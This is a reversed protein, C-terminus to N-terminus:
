GVSASSIMLEGLGCCSSMALCVLFARLFALDSAPRLLCCCCIWFAISLLAAFNLVLLLDVRVGTRLRWGLLMSISWRISWSSMMVLEVWTLAWVSWIM